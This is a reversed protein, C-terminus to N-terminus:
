LPDPPPHFYSAVAILPKVQILSPGLLKVIHVYMYLLARGTIFGSSVSSFQPGRYWTQVPYGKELEM